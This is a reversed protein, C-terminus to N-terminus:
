KTRKQKRYKEFPHGTKKKAKPKAAFVKFAKAAAEVSLGFQNCTEVIQKVWEEGAKEAREVAEHLTDAKRLRENKGERSGGVYVTVKPEDTCGKFPKNPPPTNCSM